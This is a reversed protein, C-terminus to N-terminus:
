TIIASRFSLPPLNVLVPDARPVQANCVPRLARILGAEICALLEPELVPAASWWAQDLERAARILTKASRPGLHQNLRRRIDSARGVYFVAYGGFSPFFAHLLYIGSVGYPVRSVESPSLLLPGVWDL